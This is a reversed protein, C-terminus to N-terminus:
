STLLKRIEAVMFFSGTVLIPVRSQSLNLALQLAHEPVSELMVSPHMAQFIRCVNHPDSEKFTGPTSIIIHQFHPSLLRAMDTINKGAIAGFILIRPPPFMSLYTALVQSIALSTHAGDLLVPPTSAILEMRGPLFTREFGAIISKCPASPFIQRLALYALAANRAQFDGLLKLRFHQTQMGRIRLFVETGLSHVFTDLVLLEEDLFRIPAAHQQSIQQFVQKAEPPQPASFVPVGPKIIGAKEYAIQELTNGLIETHELDIPTLVCAIPEVINTADWRGGIGTEIVAVRCGAVKFYLLAFVTVLEFATWHFGGPLGTQPTSTVIDSIQAVLERVISTNSPLTTVSIREGPDSVHPSTYLGTQYGAAGLANALFAATSGKGKTGALHIIRYAHQPNGVRGLLWRMRELRYHREEPSIKWIGVDPVLSLLAWFAESITTLMGTSTM